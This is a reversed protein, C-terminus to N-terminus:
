LYGWPMPAVGATGPAAPDDDLPGKPGGTRVKASWEDIEIAVFATAKLDADPITEYDRGATRDPHYRAIMGQMITRQRELDVVRRGRGFVTVSRYNVSHYQATRSFVLGDILVVEVCVPAGSTLHKLLRGPHGGHLYLERDRSPDFHYAMPIVYPQGHEVIGVHAVLGKALLEAIIEPDLVAREPHRRITARQAM